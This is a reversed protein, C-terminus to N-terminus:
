TTLAQSRLLSLQSAQSSQASQITNETQTPMIPAFTTIKRNTFFNYSSSRSQNEHEDKSSEISETSILDEIDNKSLQYVPQNLQENDNKIEDTVLKNDENADEKAKNNEKYSVDTMILINGNSEKELADQSLVTKEDNTNSPNTNQDDQNEIEPFPISELSTPQKFESSQTATSPRSGLNSPALTLRRRLKDPTISSKSKRLTAQSRSLQQSTQAQRQQKLVATSHRSLPKHSTRKTSLRLNSSHKPVTIHSKKVMLNQQTPMTNEVEGHAAIQTTHQNKFKTTNIKDM